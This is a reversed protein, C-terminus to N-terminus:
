ASRPRLRQYTHLYAEVTAPWGVNQTLSLASEALASRRGPSDLLDRVVNALAEANEPDDVVTLSHGFSQAAGVNRSVVVPLGTAMAEVAVLGFPEYLSPFCFLDVSRMLAPVRPTKGLFHVRDAIGLSRAQEPAPSGDVAGAVTLHVGPLHVLARLVTGLNKRPTRIDGVFVLMPVGEPLNFSARESPGPHFEDTDVGNLIVEIRDRPVGLAAVEDAVIESVAIVQRASRYAQKEWRANLLSFTRQYLQYPKLGHYPYFRNAMWSTHIFHAAVIDCPEWTIFGNAQILDFEGRHKRLWAASDLAFGINRGLQTPWSERGIKVVTACPHNAIEEACHATVLTLKVGRSLAALAVEYNVRGQGDNKQFRHAIIALRLTSLDALASADAKLPM